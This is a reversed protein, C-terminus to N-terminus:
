SGGGGGGDSDPGPVQGCLPRPRTKTPFPFLKTVRSIVPVIQCRNTFNNAPLRAQQTRFRSRACDPWGNRVMYLRYLNSTLTLAFLPVNEGGDGGDIVVTLSMHKHINVIMGKKSWEAPRLSALFTTGLPRRSISINYWM